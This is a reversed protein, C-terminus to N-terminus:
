NDNLWGRYRDLLRHLRRSCSEASKISDESWGKDRALTLAQDWARVEAEFDMVIRRAPPIGIITPKDPM